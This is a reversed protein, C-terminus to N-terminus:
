HKQDGLVSSRHADRLFESRCLVGQALVLELSPIEEDSRHILMMYWFLARCVDEIGDAKGVLEIDVCGLCAAHDDRFEEGLERLVIYVKPRSFIAASFLIDVM